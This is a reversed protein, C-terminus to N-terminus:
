MEEQRWAAVVKVSSCCSQVEKIDWGDKVLLCAERAM